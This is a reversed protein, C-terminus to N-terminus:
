FTSCGLKTWHPGLETLVEQCSLNLKVRLSVISSTSHEENLGGYQWRSHVLFKGFMPTTHLVVLERGFSLTISSTTCTDKSRRWDSSMCQGSILWSWELISISRNILTSALDEHVIYIYSFPLIRHLFKYSKKRARRTPMSGYAVKYWQSKGCASPSVSPHSSAFVIYTGFFGARLAFISSVNRDYAFM